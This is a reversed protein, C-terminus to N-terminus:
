PRREGRGVWVRCTVDIETDSYPTIIIEDGQCKVRATQNAGLWITTAATTLPAAALLLVATLILILLIIRRNRQNM